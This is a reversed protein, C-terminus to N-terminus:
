RKNHGESASLKPSARREAEVAAADISTVLM